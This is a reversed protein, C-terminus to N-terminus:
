PTRPPWRWRRGTPPRPRRAPRPTTRSGSSSRRTLQEHRDDGLTVAVVEDRAGNGGTGARVQRNSGGVRHDPYRRDLDGIRRRGQHIQRRPRATSQSRGDDADRAADPLCRGLIKNGRGHSRLSADGGVIADNLLSCPRGTVTSPAGSSVSTSTSSIPIRPNPSIARSAATARGVMPTTVLTAGDCVSRTPPISPTARALASSTRANGGSPVATSLPSSSRTTAMAASVDTVTTVNPTAASAVIRTCRPGARRDLGPATGTRNVTPSHRRSM